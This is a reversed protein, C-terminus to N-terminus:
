MHHQKHRSLDNKTKQASTNLTKNVEVFFSLNGLLVVFSSILFIKTKYILFGPKFSM